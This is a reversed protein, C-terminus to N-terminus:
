IPEPSYLREHVDSGVGKILTRRSESHMTSTFTVQSTGYVVQRM